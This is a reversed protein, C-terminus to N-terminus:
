SQLTASTPASHPPQLWPRPSPLPRDARRGAQGVQKTQAMGVPVCNGMPSRAPNLCLAGTSRTQRTRIERSMSAPQPPAFFLLPTLEAESLGFPRTASTESAFAASPLPPTVAEALILSPPRGPRFTVRSYPSTSARSPLSDSVSFTM